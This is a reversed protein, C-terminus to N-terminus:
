YSPKAFRYQFFEKASFLVQRLSRSEFTWHSRRSIMKRSNRSPAPGRPNSPWGRREYEELIIVAIRFYDIQVLSPSTFFHLEHGVTSKAMSIPVFDIAGYGCREQDAVGYGCM